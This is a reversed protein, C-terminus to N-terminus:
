WIRGLYFSEPHAHSQKRLDELKNPLDGLSGTELTVSANNPRLAGGRGSKSQGQNDHNRGKLLAHNLIELPLKNAKPLSTSQASPQHEPKSCGAWPLAGVALNQLNPRVGARGEARGARSDQTKM